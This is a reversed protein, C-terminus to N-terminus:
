EGITIDDADTQYEVTDDTDEIEAAPKQPFDTGFINFSSGAATQFASFRVLMFAMAIVALLLVCVSALLFTNIGVANSGAGGELAYGYRPMQLKISSIVTDLKGSNKSDMDDIRLLFEYRVGYQVTTLLNTVIDGDEAANRLRVCAFTKGNVDRFSVDEAEGLNYEAASKGYAEVYDALEAQELRNFSGTRKSALDSTCRIYFLNAFDEDRAYVIYGDGLLEDTTMQLTDHCQTQPTDASVTIDLRPLTISLGFEPLDYVVQERESLVDSLSVAETPPTEEAQTPTTSAATEAAHSVYAGPLAFFLLVLLIAAFRKM